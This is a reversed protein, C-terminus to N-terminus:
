QYNEVYVASPQLREVAESLKASGTTSVAHPIKRFFDPPFRDKNEKIFEILKSAPIAMGYSESLDGGTGTKRSNMGVVCCGSVSCLPGGSNGHEIKCNTILFGERDDIGSVLGNTLTSWSNESLLGPWGFACVEDGIKVDKAAFPIPKLKKGQPLDIKIIAMDGDANDAVLHATYREEEGNLHVMIKKADAIVHHNTMVYNGDAICFGSGSGRPFAGEEGAKGSLGQEIMALLHKVHTSKVPFAKAEELKKKAADKDGLQALLAAAVAHLTAGIDAHKKFTHKSKWRDFEEVEKKANDPNSNAHYFRLMWSKYEDDTVEFGEGKPLKDAWGQITHQYIGDLKNLELFSIARKLLATDPKDGGAKIRDLMDFLATRDSQWKDMLALFSTVGNITYDEMIGFPRADKDTVVVTPFVTIRFKKTLERNRNLDRVKKKAEDKEPNDIYVCVYDKAAREVFEPSTAVSDNFRSSHYQSAKADSADFVILISKRQDAAAAKKAADFDQEWDIGRNESQWQTVTYDDDETLPRSFEKKEYGKRELVFHYPQAVKPLKLTFDGSAPVATLDGNVTLTAGSRESEPWKFTFTITPVNPDIAPKLPKNENSGGTSVETKARWNVFIVGGVVGVIALCGLVVGAILLGSGSKKKKKPHHGYGSVSSKAGIGSKALDDGLVSSDHASVRHKGSREGLHIRSTSEDKLFSLSDDGGQALAMEEDAEVPAAAVVPAISAPPAAAPVNVAASCKPCKIKHGAYQDGVQYKAKCSPCQCVVSM